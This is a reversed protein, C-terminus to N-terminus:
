ISFGESGLFHTKFTTSDKIQNRHKQIERSGRKLPDKSNYHIQFGAILYKCSICDGFIM